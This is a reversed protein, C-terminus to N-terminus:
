KSEGFRSGDTIGAKTAWLGLLEDIIEYERYTKESPPDFSHGMGERSFASGPSGMCVLGEGVHWVRIAAHSGAREITINGSAVSGLLGSQLQRAGAAYPADAEDYLVLLCGGRRIWEGLSALEDEAYVAVPNAIVIGMSERLCKALEAEFQPRFGFRQVEIFINDFSDHYSRGSPGITPALYYEAHSALFSIRNKVEGVGYAHVREATTSGLWGGALVGCLVVANFLMKGLPGQCQLAVGISGLAALVLGVSALTSTGSRRRALYRLCDELLEFRGPRFVAFNAFITADGLAVVSGEGVDAVAGLALPGKWEFPECAWDGFASNHGFIAEDAYAPTFALAARASGSVSLSCGTLWQTKLVDTSIWPASLTETIGAQGGDLRSVATPDFVIGFSSVVDNLRSNSGFLDNHDGIALLHGGGVVFERIAAVEAPTYSVSPVKLVLVDTGALVKETIESNRLFDIRYRRGLEEFASSCSYVAMDGRWEVTFRSGGVEWDGVHSEDVLIRGELFGVSDGNRGFAVALAVAALLLSLAAASARMSKGIVRRRPEFARRPRLSDSREAAVAQNCGRRASIALRPRGADAESFVSMSKNGGGGIGISLLGGVAVSLTALPIAGSCVYAAAGTSQDGMYGWAAEGMVVWLVHWVLAAVIALAFCVVCRTIGVRTADRFWLDLLVAAFGALVVIVGSNYVTPAVRVLENGLNVWCQGGQVCSAYGLWTFTASAFEAWHPGMSSGIFSEFAIRLSVLCTAVILVSEVVGILLGIPRPRRSEMLLSLAIAGLAGFGLVWTELM